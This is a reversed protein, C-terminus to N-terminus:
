LCLGSGVFHPSYYRLAALTKEESNDVFTIYTHRDLLRCLLELLLVVGEEDFDSVRTLGVYLPLCKATDLKLLNEEAEAV